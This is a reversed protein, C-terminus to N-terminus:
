WTGWQVPNPTSFGHDCARWRATLACPPQAATQVSYQVMLASDSSVGYTAARIHSSWSRRISATVASCACSSPASAPISSECVPACPSFLSDRSGAAAGDCIAPSKATPSTGRAIVLRSMRRTCSSQTAAARRERVAPKSM